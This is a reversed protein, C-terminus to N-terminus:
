LLEEFRRREAEDRAVTRATWEWLDDQKDEDYSDKSSKIERMGEFYAGSKGRVGEDDGIALRALAFGSHQATHVNPSFAYRLLWILRPLVYLWLFQLIPHADRALGTGPMLGPNSAIVTWSAEKKESSSRLRRDLAYTWLINALKSNAYRQLGSEETTSPPHALIEASSYFAGPSKKAAHPM